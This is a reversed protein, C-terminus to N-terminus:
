KQFYVPTFLYQIDLGAYLRVNAIQQIMARGSVNCMLFTFTLVFIINIEIDNKGFIKLFIISCITQVELYNGM